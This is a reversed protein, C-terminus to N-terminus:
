RDVLELPEAPAPADPMAAPVPAADQRRGFRQAWLAALEARHERVLPGFLVIAWGSWVVLAMAAEVPWSEVADVLLRFVVYTMAMAGVVLGSSRLPYPYVAIRRYIVLGGFSFLGFTGVTAWAAGAAGMAPILLLNLLVNGVAAITVVPLLAITRGSILAPTKFQDHLSFLLYALCIIPVIDAAAGYEPPTLLRILPRSFLSAGLLVFGLGRVFYGFVQAYVAAADQRRAVEYVVVGWVAAFPAIVLTNVGQGIQYGVSYLGVDHLSVFVRLLFRDAEHMCASLLGFVVLPWGFRWYPALLATDVTVARRERIFPILYVICTVVTTILNGWLIGSVGLQLVVVFWVNLAVNFLLRGFSVVVLFTSAKVTRHYSELTSMVTGVWLASLAITLYEPGRLVEAGFAVAAVADRALFVGLFALAATLGVFLLATWWVRDHHRPSDGACHERVAAGAIGAGAVLAALNVVLDIIAVVGYDSPTLHRTYLPLLVISALRSVIAGFGFV